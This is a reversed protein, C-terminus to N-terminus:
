SPSSNLSFQCNFIVHDICLIIFKGEEVCVGLHKYFWEMYVIIGNCRHM